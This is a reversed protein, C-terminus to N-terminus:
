LLFHVISEDSNPKRILRQFKFQTALQLPIHWTIIKIVLKKARYFNKTSVLIQKNKTQDQPFPLLPLKPPVSYRTKWRYLSLGVALIMIRLIEKEWHLNVTRALKHGGEFEKRDFVLFVLNVFLLEEFNNGNLEVTALDFVNFSTKILWM